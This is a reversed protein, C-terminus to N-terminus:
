AADARVMRWFEEFSEYRRKLTLWDRQMDRLILQSLFEDAVVKEVPEFVSGVETRVAHFARVSKAAEKDDAERYVVRVSRILQRAQERRWAEGASRDDWDFRGHLPHAPDRALEVVLQPTLTGHQDYVAQLQDRLSV